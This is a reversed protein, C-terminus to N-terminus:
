QGLKREEVFQLACLYNTTYADTIKNAEQQALATRAQASTKEEADKMATFEAQKVQTEAASLLVQENLDQLQTYQAQLTAQLKMEEAETQALRLAESTGDISKRLTDRQSYVDTQVAKFNDVQTTVAHAPRLEDPNYPVPTGTYNRYTPGIAPYVGGRTDGLIGVGDVTRLLDSWNRLLSPAEVSLRLQSFGALSTVNRMNGLRNLQDEMQKIQQVQNSIQEAAKAVQELTNVATMTNQIVNAADIVAWQASARAAALLALLVLFVKM